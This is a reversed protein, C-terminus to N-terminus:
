SPLQSSRQFDFLALVMSLRWGGAGSSRRVFSWDSQCRCRNNSTLYCVVEQQGYKIEFAGDLNLKWTEPTCQMKVTNDLGVCDAGYTYICSLFSIDLICFLIGARWFVYRIGPIM